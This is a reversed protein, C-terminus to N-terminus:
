RQAAEKCQATLLSAIQELQAESGFQSRVSEWNATTRRVDTELAENILEPFRSLAGIRLCEFGEHDVGEMAKPTAVINCGCALAEVLKIKIGGGSEVPVLVVAARRYERALDDVFGAVEMNPHSLDDPFIRGVFRFIVDPHRAVVKPIVTEVVKRAGLSNPPYGYNGVMLVVPRETPEQSLFPNFEKESFAAPKVQVREDGVWRRFTKADESSIAITNTAGACGFREAFYIWPVLSYRLPRKHAFDLYRVYEVNHSNYLYPIGRPRGLLRAYLGAKEFDAFIVDPRAREIVQAALRHFKLSYLFYGLKSYRVSRCSALADILDPDGPREEAGALYVLHTEFHNALHRLFLKGRTTTGTAGLTPNFTSLYLLRPKRVPASAPGPEVQGPLGLESRGEVLFGRDHLARANM